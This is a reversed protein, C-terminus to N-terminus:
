SCTVILLTTENLALGTQVLGHANPNSVDLDTGGWENAGGRLHDMAVQRTPRTQLRGFGGAGGWIWPSIPYMYRSLSKLYELVHSMSPCPGMLFVPIVTGIKQLVKLSWTKEVRSACFHDRLSQLFTTRSRSRLIGSQKSRHHTRAHNGVGLRPFM